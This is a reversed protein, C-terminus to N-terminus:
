PEAEFWGQLVRVGIDIWAEHEFRFRGLDIGLWGM